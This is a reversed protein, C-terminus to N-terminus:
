RSGTSQENESDILFRKAWEPASAIFEAKTNHVPFPVDPTPKDLFDCLPQWGEEVNFKLLQAPGVLEIVSLVHEVYLSIVYDRDYHRGHFVGNLIFERKWASEKRRIPDPHFAGAELGPFITSSASEYWSVADRMTLIVKCDPFEGLIQPLFAVAPWEVAAQYGELLARWDIVKNDIAAQWAEPHGPEEDVDLLTYCPGFGLIEVARALSHTGTRGLGAGMVQLM